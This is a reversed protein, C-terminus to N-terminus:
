ADMTTMSWTNSCPQCTVVFLFPNKADIRFAIAPAGKTGCKPCSVKDAGPFKPPTTPPTM